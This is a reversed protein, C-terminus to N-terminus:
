NKKGSNKRREAAAEAKAKMDAEKWAAWFTSAIFISTYAGAIIGIILPLAFQKITSVGLIYILVITILTTITSNITRGMTEAISKNVVDSITVNKRRTRMNERIRDFIVITNNISYGVVTLMAAIFTTNISINTIAYVAAMILVNIALAIVAMVASRWEFRIAIYVLICAIALLTYLLAKRQIEQGFSASASSVSMMSVGDGYKAKLAETIGDKLTEEATKKDAAAEDAVEEDAKAVASPTKVIYQTASTGSKQVTSAGDIGNDKLVGDIIGAIEDNSAETGLEIQMRIGGMFEVDFNFGGHIIYMVVGALVILAPIILYKMKNATFNKM